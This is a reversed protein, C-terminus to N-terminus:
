ALRHAVSASVLPLSGHGIDVVFANLRLEARPGRGIHRAGHMRLALVELCDLRNGGIEARVAREIEAGAAAM